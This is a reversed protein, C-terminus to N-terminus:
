SPISNACGSPLAHADAHAHSTSDPYRAGYLRDAQEEADAITAFDGEVEIGLNIGRIRDYGGM